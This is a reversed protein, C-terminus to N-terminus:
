TLHGPFHSATGSVFYSSPLLCFSSLPLRPRLPSWSLPPPMVLVVFSLLPGSGAAEPSQRRSPLSSQSASPSRVVGDVMEDREMFISSLQKALFLCVRWTESCRPDTCGQGPQQYIIESGWGQWWCHSARAEYHTCCLCLHFDFPFLCSFAVRRKLLRPLLFM